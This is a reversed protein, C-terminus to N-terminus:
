ASTMDREEDLVARSCWCSIAEDSGSWNTYPLWEVAISPSVTLHELRRGSDNRAASCWPIDSSQLADLADCVAQHLLTRGDSDRAMPDAGSALLTEVVALNENGWAALQLPTRDARDRAELDAGGALLADIVARNRNSADAGYLPTWDASTTAVLTYAMSETNDEESCPSPRYEDFFCERYEM